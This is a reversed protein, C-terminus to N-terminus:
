LYVKGASSLTVNFTAGSSLDRLTFEPSVGEEQFSSITVEKESGDTSHLTM